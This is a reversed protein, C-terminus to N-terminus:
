KKNLDAEENCHVIMRVITTIFDIFTELKLDRTKSLEDGPVFTIESAWDSYYSATPAFDWGSPGGVVYVVAVAVQVNLGLLITAQLLNLLQITHAMKLPM